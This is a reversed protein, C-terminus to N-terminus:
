EYLSFHSLPMGQVGQIGQEGQIGREGQIGPIGQIGQAGTDGKEGQIGQIGQNGKEGQIGQIGQIGQDGKEGKLSVLWENETGVYGNEVAVQYASLGDDGRASSIQVLFEPATETINASIETVQEVINVIIEDM